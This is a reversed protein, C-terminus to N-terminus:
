PGQASPHASPLYGYKLAGVISPPTLVTVDLYASIEIPAGYGSSSWPRFAGNWKLHAVGELAVMAGEPLDQPSAQFTVIGKLRDVRESHLQRDMEPAKATGQRGAASSWRTVFEQYANRRCEACPRHGAALATPEDLFFLETYYGPHMLQRRRNGFSLTCTVWAKTVWRRKGLTRNTDHLCGRNGMLMGRDATAVIEGFPTVRNQLPM